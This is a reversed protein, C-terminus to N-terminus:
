VLKAEELKDIANSIMFYLSQQNEEIKQDIVGKEWNLSECIIRTDNNFSEIMVEIM